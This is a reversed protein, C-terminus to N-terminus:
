GPGQIFGSVGQRLMSVAIAALFLAMVKGFARTIAPKLFRTLQNYFHLITGILILNVIVAVIVLLRGHSDALVVCATMCAPGVIIPTGLPVVGVNGGIDSQKRKTQSFILDNLSIFLLVLGGAVRLDDLRIGLVRFILQGLFVISIAIAGGTIVASRSMNRAEPVEMGEVMSLFLPFITLPSMAVFLPVWVEVFLSLKM